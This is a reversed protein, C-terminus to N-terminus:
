TPTGTPPQSPGPSPMPTRSPAGASARTAEAGTLLGETLLIKRNSSSSVPPPRRELLKRFYSLVHLCLRYLIPPRRPGRATRRPKSSEPKEATLFGVRVLLKIAERTQNEGLGLKAAVDLRSLPFRKGIHAPSCWVRFCLTAIQSAPVAYAEGALRRELWNMMRRPTKFNGSWRSFYRMRGERATPLAIGNVALTNVPFRITPCSRKAVPSREGLESPRSTVVKPATAKRCPTLRPIGALGNPRLNTLFDFGRGTRSRSRGGSVAEM